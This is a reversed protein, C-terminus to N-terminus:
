VERLWRGMTRILGMDRVLGDAAMAGAVGAFPVRVIAVGRVVREFTAAACELRESDDKGEVGPM